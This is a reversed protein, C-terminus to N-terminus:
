AIEFTLIARQDKTTIVVARRIDVDMSTITKSIEALLGPKDICLVKIKAPRTAQSKEHWSVEIRRAPDAELVKPCDAEHVTIGRGRTIFGTIPDGPLPNCCRAFRILVDDVGKVVIPQTERGAVKKLIGPVKLKRKREKEKKVEEPFISRLFLNMQFKGYGVSSFFDEPTKFRYDSLFKEFEDSKLLRNMSMGYKRIAKEVVHRGLELSKEREEARIFARIRSIAKNTKVFKLWDKSPKQNPNTIIEVTEGNRLEYKLPVMRGNVKAGACRNGVETHIAYAFDVPTSGRPLEIVEGKPTFVFVEEPFLEGKVGKVFEAPDKVEKQLEVIQRLWNFAKQARQDSKGDDEKYRWHAAVGFEAIKHMEETRIQIEMREGEPGVVTTHLSQYNNTKPMAIYDKFRGPVPRWINHVVGLAEYCEKITGVIVRFAVLDYIHDFDVNQREMKKFISYIHKVRGSVQGEIGYEKLKERLLSIVDDIYKGRLRVKEELNRKIEEYKEPHLHKLCLDELEDKIGGMGLRHAIPAYIDLTEQAITYQKEPSLHHLTRMNHLRDALKIIVVSPDKAIAIIMKRFSEAKQRTVDRVSVRSIKTVGDVLYAVREGFQERIEDVTAVTDEVVDHLLGTAVTEEDQELEALIYAVNLPHILYPEGSKRFQQHHVKASFVYAKHILDLNAEPNYSM